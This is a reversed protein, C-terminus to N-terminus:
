NSPQPLPKLSIPFEIDMGTKEGGMNFTLWESTFLVSQLGEPYRFIFTTHASKKRDVRLFDVSVGSVSILEFRPQTEQDILAFKSEFGSGLYLPRPRSGNNRVSIRASLTNANREVYRLTWRWHNTKAVTRNVDIRWREMDSDAASGPTAPLPYVDIIISAILTLGGILAVRGSNRIWWVIM